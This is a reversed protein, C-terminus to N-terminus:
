EGWLSSASAFRSRFPGLLRHRAPARPPMSASGQSGASTSSVACTSLTPSSGLLPGVPHWMSRLARSTSRRRRTDGAKLTDLTGPPYCSPSRGVLKIVQELEGPRLKPVIEDISREHLLLVAAIVTEPVGKAAAWRVSASDLVVGFANTMAPVHGVTLRRASMLTDCNLTARVSERCILKKHM